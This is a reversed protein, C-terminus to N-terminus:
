CFRKYHNKEYKRPSQVKEERKHKHSDEQLPCISHMIRTTKRDVTQKLNLVPWPLVDGEEGEKTFVIVEPEITNLHDLIKQAEGEKCKTGDM